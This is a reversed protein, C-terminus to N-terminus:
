ASLKLKGVHSEPQARPSPALVSAKKKKPQQVARSVDNQLYYSLYFAKDGPHAMVFCIKFTAQTQSRLMEIGVDVFGISWGEVIDLEVKEPVKCTTM